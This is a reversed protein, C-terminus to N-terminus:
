ESNRIQSLGLKHHQFYHFDQFIMFVYKKLVESKLLMIGSNCLSINKQDTTTDKFEVIEEASTTYENPATSILM